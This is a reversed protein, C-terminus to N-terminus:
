FSMKWQVPLVSFVMLYKGVFVSKDITRQGPNYFIVGAHGSQLCCRMRCVTCTNAAVDVVATIAVVVSHFRVDIMFLSPVFFLLVKDTIKM